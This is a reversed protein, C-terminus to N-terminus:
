DSMGPPKPARGGQELCGGFGPLKDVAPLLVSRAAGEECASVVQQPTGAPQAGFRGPLLSVEREPQCM